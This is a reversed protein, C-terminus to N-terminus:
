SSKEEQAHKKWRSVTKRERKRSKKKKKENTLERRFLLSNTSPRSKNNSSLMSKRNNIIFYEHHKTNTHPKEEWLCFCERKKGKEFEIYIKNLGCLFVSMIREFPFTNEARENLNV